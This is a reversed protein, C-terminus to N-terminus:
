LTSPSSDDIYPRSFEDIYSRALDDMDFPSVSAVRLTGIATIVREVRRVVTGKGSGKANPQSGSNRGEGGAPVLGSTARLLFAVLQGVSTDTELPAGLRTYPSGRM